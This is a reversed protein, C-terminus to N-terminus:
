RRWRGACACRRRISITRMCGPRPSECPWALRTIGRRAVLTSSKSYPRTCIRELVPHLEREYSGLLKPFLASSIAKGQPYQLGRFFGHRVKLDPCIKQIAQDVFIQEPLIRRAEEQKRREQQLYRTGKVLSADLARWLGDHRVTWAAVAKILDKM